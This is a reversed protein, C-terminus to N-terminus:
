VAFADEKTGGGDYGEETMLSKEADAIAKRFVVLAKADLDKAQKKIDGDTKSVESMDLTSLPNKRPRGRGRKPPQVPLSLGVEVPSAEAGKAVKNIRRRVQKM